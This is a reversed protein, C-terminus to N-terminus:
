AKVNEKKPFLRPLADKTDVLGDAVARFSSHYTEVSFRIVSLAADLQSEHIRNDAYFTSIKYYLTERDPDLEFGGYPFHDNLHMLLTLVEALRTEPVNLPISARLVVGRAMAFIFLSCVLSNVEIKAIVARKGAFEIEKKQLWGKVQESAAEIRAIEAEHESAM